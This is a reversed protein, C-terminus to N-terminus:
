ENMVQLAHLRWPSVHSRKVGAVYGSAISRSLRDIAESSVQRKGPEYKSCLCLLVMLSCAEGAVAAGTM